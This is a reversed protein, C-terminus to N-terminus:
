PGHEGGSTAADAIERLALYPIEGDAIPRGEHDEILIHRFDGNSSGVKITLPGCAIVSGQIPRATPHGYQLWSDEGALWEEAEDLPVKTRVCSYTENSKRKFTFLSAWGKAEDVDICRRLQNNYRLGAIDYIGVTM